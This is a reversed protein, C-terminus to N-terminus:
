FRQYNQPDNMLLASGTNYPLPKLQAVNITLAHLRQSALLVVESVVALLAVVIQAVLDVVELQNLLQAQPRQVPTPLRDERHQPAPVVRPLVLRTEEETRLAEADALLM